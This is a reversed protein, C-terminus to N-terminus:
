VHDAVPEKTKIPTCEGDELNIEVAGYEKELEGKFTNIEDNLAAIEHLFSHKQTELVGIQSLINGIKTQQDQIKKLQEEKIKM